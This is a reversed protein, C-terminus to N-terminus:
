GTDKKLEKVMKYDHLMRKTMSKDRADHEDDPVKCQGRILGPEPGPIV